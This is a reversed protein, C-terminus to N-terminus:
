TQKVVRSGSLWYSNDRYFHSHFCLILSTEVSGHSKMAEQFFHRSISIQDTYNEKYCRVAIERWCLFYKKIIQVYVQFSFTKSIQSYKRGYKNNCPYWWPTNVPYQYMILNRRKKPYMNILLRYMKNTTFLRLLTPNWLITTSEVDSWHSKLAKTYCTQPDLSKIRVKMDDKSIWSSRTENKQM